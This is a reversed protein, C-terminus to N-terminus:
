LLISNPTKRLWPRDEKRSKIRKPAFPPYEGLFGIKESILNSFLYIPFIMMVYKLIHLHKTTEPLLSTAEYSLFAFRLM